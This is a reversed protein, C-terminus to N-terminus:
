GVATATANSSCRTPAQRSRRRASRLRAVAAGMLVQNGVDRSDPDRREWTVGDPSAARPLHAGTPPGGHQLRDRGRRGDCRRCRHDGLCQGHHVSGCERRQGMRLGTTPVLRCDRGRGRDEARDHLRRGMAHIGLADRRDGSRVSRARTSPNGSRDGDGRDLHGAALAVSSRQEPHVIWASRRRREDGSPEPRFRLRPWPFPSARPRGM